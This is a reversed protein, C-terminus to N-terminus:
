HVATRYGYAPAPAPELEWWTDPQRPLVRPRPRLGLRELETLVLSLVPAIASRVSPSLHVGTAVWEPVVGILLVESPGAGAAAVTLLAEKIGPDHPGLRPTPAHRLIDPLTYSRIDGPAGDSKVTDLLIVVDADLLYPTLDLGPTGADIVQVSEPMEYFADMVRAAYPGFGDDSMLVNGLGLIRVNM